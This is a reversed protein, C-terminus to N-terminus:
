RCIARSGRPGRARPRRVHHGPQRREGGARRDPQRDRGARLPHAVHRQRRHRRGRQPVGRVRRQGPLQRLRHGRIRRQHERSGGRRGPGRDGGPLRRAAATAAPVGSWRSTRADAANGHRQRHLLEPAAAPQLGHEALGAGGPVPTTCCPPLDPQEAVTPRPTSACRRHQRQQALDGGRALRRPPRRVAVAHGQHRQQFVRRRATLLRTDGGTGYKDIHTGDLLERVPDADWWALFNARARSAASTRGGTGNSLSTWGRVVLVRRRRQRGLRRRRRRPRQRRQLLRAVLHGAGTSRTACATPRSHHRGRRGQVGGPGARSPVFDGVHLADGHGNTNWLPQGNDDIAM